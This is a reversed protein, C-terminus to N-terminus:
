VDRHTNLSERGLHLSGQRKWARDLYTRAPAPSPPCRSSDAGKEDREPTIPLPPSLLPSFVSLTELLRSFGRFHVNNAAPARPTTSPTPLTPSQPCSPKVPHLSGPPFWLGSERPHAPYFVFEGEFHGKEKVTARGRTTKKNNNHNEM